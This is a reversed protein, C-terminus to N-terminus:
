PVWAIHHSLWWILFGAGIVAIIKGVRKIRRILRRWKFQNRSAQFHELVPQHGPRDFIKYYTTPLVTVSAGQLSDYAMYVMDEDLTLPGCDKEADKWAKAFRRGNENNRVFMAGASIRLYHTRGVQTPHFVVAVDSKLEDILTMPQRVVADADVYMINRDPFKQLCYNVFVPKLRTTAEWTPGREYRKLFYNIGFKELSAKLSLIQPLYNPTYFACAVYSQPGDLWALEEPLEVHESTEEESQVSADM